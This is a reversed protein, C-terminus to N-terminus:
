ASLPAPIVQYRDPAVKGFFRYLLTLLRRPPLPRVIYALPSLAPVAHTIADTLSEGATTLRAIEKLVDHLEKPAQVNLQKIGQEAKLEKAKAVRLANKSANTRVFAKIQRLGGDELQEDTLVSASDCAAQDAEATEIYTHQDTM